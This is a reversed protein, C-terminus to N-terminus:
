QLACEGGVGLSCRLERTAVWQPLHQKTTGNQTEAWSVWFVESTHFPSSNYATLLFPMVAFVQPDPLWVENYAAVISAAKMQQDTGRWGTESMAVRFSVDGERGVAKVQARYNEIGARGLPESFPADHFPYPHASFFDVTTWLDPVEARMAAIYAVDNSTSFNVPPNHSPSACECKTPAVYALPALAISVRPLTRM